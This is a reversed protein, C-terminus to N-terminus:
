GLAVRRDPAGQERQSFCREAPDPSAHPELRILNADNEGGENALLAGRKSGSKALCGPPKTVRTAKDEDLATDLADKGRPGSFSM